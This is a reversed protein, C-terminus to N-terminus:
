FYMFHSALFLIQLQEDSEPEQASRFQAMWKEVHPWQARSEWLTEDLAKLKAQLEEIIAARTM